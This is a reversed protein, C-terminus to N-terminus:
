GGECGPLDYLAALGCPSNFRGDPDSHGVDPVILLRHALGTPRRQQLCRFHALGRAYRHPGEAESICIKDLAPHNLTTTARVLCISWTARPM